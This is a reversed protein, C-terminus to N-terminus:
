FIIEEWYRTMRVGADALLNEKSINTGIMTMLCLLPINVGSMTTLMLGGASFRPNIEIFYFKNQNEIFQLNCAGIIKFAKCIKRTYDTIIENQFTIGKVTQGSKTNLRIRPCIAIADSDTNCFTDVTYEPGEIFDQFIRRNESIYYELLKPDKILFAGKSNSGSEFKSFIPFDNITPNKIIKPVPIGLNSVVINSLIKNNCKDISEVSPLLLKVGSDEFSRKNKSFFTIEESYCPFIYQIGEKRFVEELFEKYLKEEKVPPSIYQSDALHLGSAYSDTDSAVIIIDYEKQYKLSKIVNVASMVGASTVLIKIQM